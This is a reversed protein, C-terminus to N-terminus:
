SFDKRGACRGKPIDAEGELFALAKMYSRNKLFHKLQPHIERRHEILAGDIEGMSQKIGAADASDIAEKLKQLSEKIQTEIM